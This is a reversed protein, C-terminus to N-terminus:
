VNNGGSRCSAGGASFGIVATKDTIINWEEARKRILEMTEDYDNLPNPWTSHEGVSYRLIFADFGAKLYPFAVPDAERDSCFMYGGGPIILVAPRAKIGRFEGEVDQIMATLTVNREKDIVITEIRM